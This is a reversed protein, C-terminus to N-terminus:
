NPESVVGITGLRFKKDGTEVWVKIRGPAAFTLNNFVLNATARLFIDSAVMDDPLIMDRWDDPISFRAVEIDGEVGPTSVVVDVPTTAEGPREMYNASVVLKTLTNPFGGQLRIVDQYIGMLSHKNGAEVRLDDCFIVFGNPSQRKIDQM